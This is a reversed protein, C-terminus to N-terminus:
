DGVVTTWASLDGSEFGDGFLSLQITFAHGPYSPARTDAVAKAHDPEALIGVRAKRVRQGLSVFYDGDRILPPQM